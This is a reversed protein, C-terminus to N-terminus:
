GARQVILVLHDQPRQDFELHRPVCGGEVAVALLGPIGPTAYYLAPGMSADVHEDPADRGGASLLLVGGPELAAMLALLLPRQAQLRVHWLSDWASIFRYARPIPWRCLDAHHITAAPDAARALAVMHASIDVGEVQLGHARLPARFRTNCGCGAELAWGGEAEGLFALARRHQALGDLGDFRDDRWREALQDYAAATSAHDM